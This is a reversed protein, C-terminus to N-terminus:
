LCLSLRRDKKGAFESIVQDVDVKKHKHVHLVALSSLREDSMTSRLPTKLRKMGSFSPEAVCTTVPYTLLTKIALYIGPYLEANAYDLTEVLSQPSGEESLLWRHRWRTVERKFEDLSMHMDEGYHSYIDEM